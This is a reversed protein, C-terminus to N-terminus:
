DKTCIGEECSEACLSLASQANWDSNIFEHKFFFVLLKTVLLYQYKGWIVKGKLSWTIRNDVDGQFSPIVEFLNSVLNKECLRIATLYHPVDCTIIFSSLDM